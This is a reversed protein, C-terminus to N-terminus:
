HNSTSASHSGPSQYQATAQKLLRLCERNAALDLATFDDQTALLPNAGAQLLQEVVIHKGSSSAYILSTAGSTNQFDIAIDAQLLREICSLSEAFCAAWLANNGYHDLVNLDTCSQLLENLVDIRGNRCALILLPETQDAQAQIWDNTEMDIM